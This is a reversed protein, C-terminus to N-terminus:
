LLEDDEEDEPEDDDDSGDDLELSAWDSVCEAFSEWDELFDEPGFEDLEAQCEETAVAVAKRAEGRKKKICAPMPRQGYRKRFARNGIAQKQQVCAKAALKAVLGGGPKAAAGGPMVLSACLALAALAVVSARRGPAYRSRASYMGEM